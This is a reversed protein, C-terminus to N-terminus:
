SNSKLYDLILKHIKTKYINYTNENITKKMLLGLIRDTLESAIKDIDYSM